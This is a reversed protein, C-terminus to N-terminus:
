AQPFFVTASLPFLLMHLFGLAPRAHAFFLLPVLAAPVSHALPASPSFPLSAVAGWVVFPQMLRRLNTTFESCFLLMTQSRSYCSQGPHERQSFSSHASCCCTPPLHLSVVQPSRCYCLLCCVAPQFLTSTSATFLPQVRFIIQLWCFRNISQISTPLPSFSPDLIDGLFLVAM